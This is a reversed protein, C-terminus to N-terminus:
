ELDSSRLGTARFVVDESQGLALLEKAIRKASEAEGEARGEARGRAEGEEVAVNLATIRDREWKQRAEIAWRVEDNSLATQTAKMATIMGEERQLMQPLDAVEEYSTAQRLFYLWREMPDALEDGPQKDFKAIEVYHLELLDGLTRDHKNDYLRYISHLDEFDEFLVFDVISIHITPKLERYDEGAEIQAGILNAAYYLSRERYATQEQLQVEINYVCGQGDRAKVDLITGKDHLYEKERLPNLLTIEAIRHVGQLGLIANLLGRLAESHRQSGFVVKFLVDNLLTVKMGNVTYRFGGAASSTRELEVHSRADRM